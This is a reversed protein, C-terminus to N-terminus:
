IKKEIDEDSEEIIKQLENFPEMEMDIGTSGNKYNGMKSSRITDNKIYKKKYNKIRNVKIKNKDKNKDDKKVINDVLDLSKIVLNCLDEKYFFQPNNKFKDCIRDTKHVKLKEIKKYINKNKLNYKNLIEEKNSSILKTSNSKKLKKDKPLGILNDKDNKNLLISNIKGRKLKELIVNINRPKFNMQQGFFDFISIKTIEDKINYEISINDEEHISLKKRKKVTIDGGNKPINKKKNIKEKEKIKIFKINNENNKNNNIKINNINKDENIEKQEEKETSENYKIEIKKEHNKSSLINLNNLLSVKPSNLKKSLENSPKEKNNYQNKLIVDNNNKFKQFDDNNDNDNDNDDDILNFDQKNTCENLQDNDNDKNNNVAQNSIVNAKFNYNIIKDKTKQNKEDSNKNIEEKKNSIFPIYINNEKKTIKDNTLTEIFYNDYAGFCFPNLDNNKNIDNINKNNNNITFHNQTIKLSRSNFKYKSYKNAKTRLFINQYDNAKILNNNVLNKNKTIKKDYYYNYYSINKNKRKIYYDYDNDLNDNKLYDINEYNDNFIGSENLNYRINNDGIIMSNNRRKIKQNKAEEWDSNTTSFINKIQNMKNDLIDINMKVNLLYINDQSRNFNKNSYENISSNRNKINKQNVISNYNFSDILSDTKDTEINNYKYRHNINYYRKDYVNM